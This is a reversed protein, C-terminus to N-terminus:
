KTRIPLNKRHCALVASLEDQLQSYQDELESIRSKLLNIEEKQVEIRCNLDSNSSNSIDSQLLSELPKKSRTQTPVLEGSESLKGVLKRKSVSRKKEKDWHCELVEYVYTVGNKKNYSKVYRM